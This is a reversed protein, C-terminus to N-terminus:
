ELVNIQRIGNHTTFPVFDMTLLYKPNHDKIANLSSLERELTEADAVTQAVQYYKSGTSLYQRGKVDYRGVKYLIFGDTLGTLYTEVTKVSIKRGASTMTIAIRTASCLNGINDLMFRIVSDLMGADMIRYRAVIDKLVISTYVGIPM